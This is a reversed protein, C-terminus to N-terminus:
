SRVRHARRVLAVLLVSLSALVALPSGHRTGMSLSCGDDSKAARTPETPGADSAAAGGGADPTVVPTGADAVGADVPGRGSMQDYARGSLGCYLRQTGRMTVDYQGCFPTFPYHGACCWSAGANLQSSCAGAMDVGPCELLSAVTDIQALKEFAGSVPDLLGFKDRQCAFLKGSAADFDACDLYQTGAVKTLPEGLKAATWLGGVAAPSSSDGADAVYIRGDAGFTVASTEQIEQYHAFTKGGDQSLVLTDPASDHYRTALVRKPESPDIALLVFDEGDAEPPPLPVPASWTKGGDTSGVLVESEKATLDGQSLTVTAYLQLENSLTKSVVLGGGYARQGSVHTVLQGVSSWTGDAARRRLESIADTTGMGLNMNVVALLEDASKPDQELSTPWLGVLDKSWACGQGDDAYLGGIQSVLLKGHSDILTAASGPVKASSIRKLKNSEDADPTIAQSCMAQFTRGGDRSYLYGESAVGYRVVVVSPDAPSRLVQVLREVPGSAHAVDSVGPLAGVVVGLTVASVSVVFRSAFGM